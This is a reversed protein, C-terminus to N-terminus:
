MITTWRSPRPGDDPRGHRRRALRNFLTVLMGQRMVAPLMLLLLVHGLGIWASAVDTRLQVIRTSARL